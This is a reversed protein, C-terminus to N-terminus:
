VLNLETQPNEVTTEITKPLLDESDASPLDKLESLRWYVKESQVSLDSVFITDGKKQGRFAIIEGEEPLKKEEDIHNMLSKGCFLLRCSSTNDSINMKYYMNGKKSKSKYIEKITAVCTATEGELMSQFELINILDNREEGFVSKLTHSYSYGLLKEELILSTLNEHQSNMKFIKSYGISKKRLTGLRTKRAVKKGLSDTWNDLNKLSDLLNFNNNKGNNILYLKEKDTLLNWIQAELVTKTRTETIFEDICGSQILASVIGIGLKSQRFCQFLEYKTSYDSKFSKLKELASSAIGKISCLGFRIDNGVIEFDLNGHKISPPLLKINYLQLEKQISAIYEQSDAENKSMRLLALFFEKPHNEKVWITMATLMGYLASHSFNFQYGASDEVIKWVVDAIELPHNNDKCAKYIKDKSEKIKLEDKKGIARRVLECNELDMGLKNLMLLVQEQFLCVGGTPKLVDDIVHYTEKYIGKHIYDCYKELYDMAGPRSIALCCTLEFFNKCKIKKACSGQAFTELQFIGFTREFNQLSDYISQDHINISFPDIGILKAAEFLTSSTKLGLIDFKVSLDQAEYMSFSTIIEKTSSLELPMVDDMNEFTIAIASAHVSKCKILQYLTRSISYIEPYSDCFKKFEPVEKYVKDIPEPKGYITPILEAIPHVDSEELEYLVKGVEKILNKSQLEQLSVIKATKGNFKDRIYSQIEGKRYFCFDQDVDCILSGLLYTIGDVEKKKARVKSIFRQFFLQMPLEKGIPDLHICGIMYFVLSGGVSGRGPGRPIENKVAYQYIDWIALVYDVFGLDKFTELEYKLRETYEKYREKDIKGNELKEKFGNYCVQRLFDYNSCNKRAGVAKKEEESIKIEPLRVWEYLPFDYTSFKSEFINDEKNEQKIENWKLFNFSDDSNHELNPKNINTRKSICCLTQYSKYLSPSYYYISHTKVIPYNYEKCYKYLADKILFSFPLDHTESEDFFIPNTFNLDPLCTNFKLLNNAIFSDFFNVTLTLNNSWLSKLSKSDIRAFYYFGECHARSSIKILDKYGASSNCWVTIASETKLSSESKDDIDNCLILKLGFRFPINYYKSTKYCKFFGSMSRDSIYIYPLKNKYAAHFVSIPSELDIENDKECEKEPQEATFLASGISYTTSFLPIVNYM